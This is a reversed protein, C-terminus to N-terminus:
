KFYCHEPMHEFTHVFDNIVPADDDYSWQQDYDLEYDAFRPERQPRGIKHGVKQVTKKSKM